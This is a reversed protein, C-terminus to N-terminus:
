LIEKKFDKQKGFNWRPYKSPFYSNLTTIIPKYVDEQKIISVYVPSAMRPKANGLSSDRHIHSAEGIKKLLEDATDYSKGIEIERIWPYNGCRQTNIIKNSKKVIYSSQIKKLLKLV